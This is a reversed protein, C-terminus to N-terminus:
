QSERPLAEQHHQIYQSACQWLEACPTQIAHLASAVVAPNAIYRHVANHADRGPSARYACLSCPTSWVHHASVSKNATCPNGCASAGLTNQPRGHAATLQMNAVQPANVGDTSHVVSSTDTNEKEKQNFNNRSMLTASFPPSIPPSPLAHRQSCSGIAIGTASHVAFAM